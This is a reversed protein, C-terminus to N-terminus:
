LSLQLVWLGSNIDSALITTGNVFVGWVHPFEVGPPAFFAYPDAAPPPVFQAIKRPNAPSSIDVVVVGESYWSFYALSGSVKPDHVSFHGAGPVAGGTSGLKITGLQRPSARNTIDFLRAFGWSQELSGTADPGPQLDEDTQVLMTGYRALWASHANGEEGPRFLTRGIYKPQAPNSVDLIVTGLDWYSLYARLGDGIVSHVFNARLVGGPDTALPYLGLNRWAGWQGVQRPAAPNSVDIVRFDAQGPTTSDPSTNLESWVVATYVYAKGLHSQLWIEHSGVGGPTEYLAIRRPHAPDTVNWLGFGRFSGAKCSQISVAALDGHFWPTDVRRVIVKETWTGSLSTAGPESGQAFTSVLTPKAPNLLSYVRVGRSPCYAGGSSGNGWSGLYAYGRHAVVDGNFGGGPDAHGIARFGQATPLSLSLGDLAAVTGSAFAPVAFAPATFGGTERPHAVAAPAFLLLAGVVSVVGAISQVIRM